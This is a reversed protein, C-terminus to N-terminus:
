NLNMEAIIDDINTPRSSSIPPKQSTTNKTWSTNPQQVGSEEYMPRPEKGQGEQGQTGSSQMFNSFLNNITHGVNGIASATQSNVGMSQLYQHFIMASIICIFLELEPPMFSRMRYKLYIKEFCRTKGQNEFALAIQQTVGQMQLSPFRTKVWKSCCFMEIYQFSSVIWSKWEQAGAKLDKEYMEKENQRKFMDFVFQLEELGTAIGLSKDYTYGYNKIFRDIDFLLNKKMMIVQEHDIQPAKFKSSVISSSISPARKPTSHYFDPMQENSQEYMLPMQQKLQMPETQHHTSYSPNDIHNPHTSQKAQHEDSNNPEDENLNDSDFLSDERSLFTQKLENPQNSNSSKEHFTTPKEDKLHEMIYDDGAM